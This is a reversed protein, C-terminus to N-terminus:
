PKPRRETLLVLQMASVLFDLIIKRIDGNLSSGLALLVLALLILLIWLMRRKITLKLVLYITGYKEELVLGNEKQRPM